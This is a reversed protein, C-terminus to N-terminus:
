LLDGKDLEADIRKKAITLFEESLDMGIVKRGYRVGAIATTGSGIFPDLIISEATTSAEVLREMLWEPKQTPHKGFNKESQRVTSSSWVDKLQKGNNYKKMEEYNFVHRGKKADKRAWIITETSHTFMRGSLNPAPNTKQWTVNNLIKWGKKQLLYGVLYINHMTGFIWITGDKTLVRGAEDLFENYFNEPDTLDAKDWDGKNVSAQKGSQVTIGGNSLFFPPDTIIVDISESSINQMLKLSDGLYLEVKERQYYPSM